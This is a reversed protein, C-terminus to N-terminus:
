LSSAPPMAPTSQAPRPTPAMAALMVAGCAAADAAGVAVGLGM